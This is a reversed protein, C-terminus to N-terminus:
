GRLFAEIEEKTPLSPQAGEETTALAGAANAFRLAPGLGRGQALAVAFAGCFADGAATTDIIKVKHAELAGEGNNSSWVLGRAGLTVVVTEAGRERLSRAAALASEADTVKLDSLLAAEGENVVLYKIKQLLENPLPQAPAPNLLVPVGRAAAAAAVTQVTELPIELQMMVLAAGHLMEEQFRESTLKGNAGPSVVIMNQGDADVTILAVGSPGEFTEVFGVDVGAERLADKLAEGYADSGVLGLMAVDGGAKSAAAAQNAGKGGPITRTDGGLVTDGPKPHTEVTVVLDMNLSGVVLIRNRINMRGNYPKRVAQARAAGGDPKTM